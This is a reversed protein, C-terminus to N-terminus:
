GHRSLLCALHTKAVSLRATWGAAQASQIMLELIRQYESLRQVGLDWGARYFCDYAQDPADGALLKRGENMWLEQVMTLRLKEPAQWITALYIDDLESGSLHKALLGLQAISFKGYRADSWHTRLRVSQDSFASAYRGQFYVRSAEAFDGVRQRHWGAINFAWGLDSRRLLVEQAIDNAQTWQQVPWSEESIGALAGLRGQYEEPITAVDFLWRVYDPTWNMELQQAIAPNALEAPGRQLVEEILDCAVADPSWRNDRLSTLASPYDGVSLASVINTLTDAVSDTQAPTTILHRELWSVFPVEALAALVRSRQKPELTEAAGRLMQSRLPRFQDVADHLVAEALRDGVPIWDGGGHYWHVLEGLENNETIRACIWDGYENGLIPLTDPLMFGPWIEGPCDATLSQATLATRFSGPLTTGHMETDFWEQWARSLRLQYHAALQQSPQNVILGTSHSTDLNWSPGLKLSARVRNM